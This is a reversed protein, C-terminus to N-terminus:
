KELEPYADFRFSHADEWDYLWSLKTERRLYEEASIGGVVEENGEAELFAPVLDAGSRLAESLAAYGRLLYVFPRAYGVVPYQWDGAAVSPKDGPAHSIKRICNGTPIVRRPSVRLRNEGQVQGDLVTQIEAVISSVTADSADIILDYNRLRAIDVNYTALFRRRESQYREEAAIRADEISVYKEVGSTRVKLLREAAVHPDVMLHIKFASPVFHWALRSDFIAPAQSKGASVLADDIKRDFASDREALYNAELTSLGMSAAMSRQLEGTSVVELGYAGALSRAVSTKGTGPEGSIAIHQFHM